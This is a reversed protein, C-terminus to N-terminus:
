RGITASGTDSVITLKTWMAEPSSDHKDARVPALTINAAAQSLPLDDQRNGHWVNLEGYYRSLHQPAHYKAKLALQFPRCRHGTHLSRARDPRTRRQRPKAQRVDPERTISSPGSLKAVQRAYLSGLV